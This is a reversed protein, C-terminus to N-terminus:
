RGGVTDNGQTANAPEAECDAVARRVRGHGESPVMAFM